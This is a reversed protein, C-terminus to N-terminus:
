PMKENSVGVAMETKPFVYHKFLLYLFGAVVGIAAAQVLQHPFGFVDVFILLISFNLTYGGLHAFLYRRGAGLLSGAHEFAWQRNGIFGISAGVIYLLSMTIKPEIGSYTLLLYAGYATLNSLVGVVAYRSFTRTTDFM